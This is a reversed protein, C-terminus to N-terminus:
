GDGDMISRLRYVSLSVPRGTSPTVTAKLEMVRSDAEVSGAEIQYTLGSEEGGSSSTVHEAMARELVADAAMMARYYPEMRALRVVHGSVDALVVGVVMSGLAMSVLVELLSFGRKRRAYKLICRM